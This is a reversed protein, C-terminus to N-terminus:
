KINFELVMKGNICGEVHTDIEAPLAGIPSGCLIIDGQRLTYFRSVHAIIRSIGFAMNRCDAEHSTQGGDLTLSLRANQMEDPTMAVMDGLATAGDFGVATDWPLGEARLKSLLDTAVFSIGLTAADCYRHAFRESIHRGLRCIRVALEAHLACPEAYDPVFFPKGALLLTTDSKTLVIPQEISLPNEHTKNQETFNNCIAIIKMHRINNRGRTRM